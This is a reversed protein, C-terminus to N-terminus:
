EHLMLLWLETLKGLLAACHGLRLVHGQLLYPADCMCLGGFPLLVSRVDVGLNATHSSSPTTKTSDCMWAM